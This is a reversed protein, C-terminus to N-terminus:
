NKRSEVQANKSYCSCRGQCVVLCIEKEHPLVKELSENVKEMESKESLNDTNQGAVGLTLLAFLITLIYRVYFNYTNNSCYKTKLNKHKNIRQKM